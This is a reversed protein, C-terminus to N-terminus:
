TKKLKNWEQAACDLEEYWEEGYKRILAEKLFVYLPYKKKAGILLATQCVDWSHYNVADFEPYKDIRIPYLHCSVPKQISTKGELYAKEIGCFAIGKNFITFVCEKGDILSTVKDGDRDITYVGDKDIAKVGKDSLFPVINSIETNLQDIESDELPAGSDGLVCCIGKCSQLDCCFKKEIVDFSVLTNQIQLM